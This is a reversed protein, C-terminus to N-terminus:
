LTHAPGMMEVAKSVREGWKKDDKVGNLWNMAKERLVMWAEICNGAKAELAAVAAVTALVGPQAALPVRPSVGPPRPEDEPDAEITIPIKTIKYIKGEDAWSGDFNQLNTIETFEFDEERMPPLLVSASSDKWLKWDQSLATLPKDLEGRLFDALLPVVTVSLEEWYTVPVHWWGKVTEAASPGSAKEVTSIPDVFEIWYHRHDDAVDLQVRDHTIVFVSHYNDTAPACITPPLDFRGLNAAARNIFEIATDFTSPTYLESKEFCSEYNAGVRFVNFTCGTLPLSRILLNVCRIAQELPGGQM